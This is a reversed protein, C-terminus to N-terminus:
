GAGSAIRLQTNWPRCSGKSLASVTSPLYKALSSVSGTARLMMRVVKMELCAASFPARRGSPKSFNAAFFTPTSPAPMIPAPM